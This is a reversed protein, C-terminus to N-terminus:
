CHAILYNHPNIAESIPLSKGSFVEEVDGTPRGDVHRKRVQGL